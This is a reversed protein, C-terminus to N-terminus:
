HSIPIRKRNIKTTGFIYVGCFWFHLKVISAIGGRSPVKLFIIELIENM